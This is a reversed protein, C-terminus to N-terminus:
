VCIHLVSTYPDPLSQTVGNSCDCGTHWDTLGEGVRVGLWFGAGARPTQPTPFPVSEAGLYWSFTPSTPPNPPAAADTHPFLEPRPPPRCSKWTSLPGLGLPTRTSHWCPCRPQWGKHELILALRSPHGHGLSSALAIYSHAGTGLPLAPWPLAGTWRVLSPKTSVGSWESRLLSVGQLM